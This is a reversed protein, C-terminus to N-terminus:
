TSELGFDIAVLKGNIRGLNHYSFDSSIIGARKLKGSLSNLEEITYDYQKVLEAVETMFCYGYEKNGIFIDDLDWQLLNSVLCKRVNSLVKPGLNIKNALKQRARSNKADIYTPYIKVGVDKKLQIFMCECGTQPSYYIDRSVYSPVYKERVPIALIKEM